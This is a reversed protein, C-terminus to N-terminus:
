GQRPRAKISLAQPEFASTDFPLPEATSIRRLDVRKVTSTSPDFTVVGEFSAQTRLAEQIEDDLGAPFDVTVTEGTATLLRATRRDFDAERLTGVLVDSQQGLPGDALHRMRERASADLRGVKTTRASTLVLEDHREGIGLEHGLDALARAIGTDVLDAPQSFSAILRDFAAGALDDVEVDFTDPTIEALQPLRLVAVVSGAEVTQFRLRSAAEIAARHRGTSYRRAKGVAAYAAAAVAAELGTILRAIDSARVVGLAADRGHLTARLEEGAM